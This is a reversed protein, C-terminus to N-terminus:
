DQVNKVNKDKLKLGHKEAINMIREPQMLESKQTELDDISKSENSIQEELKQVEMNTQYTAFAKNIIFISVSLVAVVFLMILIKEGLTISARRKIVVKQETQRSHEHQKEVNYALNSMSEVEKNIVPRTDSFFAIEANRLSELSLLGPETTKRWNM